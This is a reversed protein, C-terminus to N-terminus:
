FDGQDDLDVGPDVPYRKPLEYLQYTFKKSVSDEFAQRVSQV